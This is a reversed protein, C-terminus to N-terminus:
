NERQLKNKTQTESKLGADTKEDPQITSNIKDQNYNLNIGDAMPEQSSFRGDQSIHLVTLILLLIAAAESLKVVILRTRLHRHASFRKAFKTWSQPDYAAHYQHIRHRVQHDFAEDAADLSAAIKEWGKVPAQPSYGNLMEKLFDDEPSVNLDQGDFHGPSDGGSTQDERPHLDGNLDNLLNEWDKNEM